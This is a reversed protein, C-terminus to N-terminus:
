GTSSIKGRLNLKRLVMGSKTVLWLEDLPVPGSSNAGIFKGNVFTTRYGSIRPTL